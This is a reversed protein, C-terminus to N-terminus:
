ETSSDDHTIIPPSLDVIVNECTLHLDNPIDKQAARRGNVEYVARKGLDFLDGFTVNHGDTLETTAHIVIHVTAM